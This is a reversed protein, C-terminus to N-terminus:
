FRGFGTETAAYPESYRESHDITFDEIGRAIPHKPEKVSVTVTKADNTCAGWSCATGMLAINPKSFHASHLAIFGM